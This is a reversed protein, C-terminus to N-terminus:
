CFAACKSLGPVKQSVISHIGGVRERAIVAIYCDRESKAFRM